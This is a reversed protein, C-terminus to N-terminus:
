VVARPSVFHLLLLAKGQDFQHDDNRDDGDQSGNRQRSVAIVGLLRLHGLNNKGGRRQTSAYGLVDCAVIIQRAVVPIIATIEGRRLIHGRKLPCVALNSRGCLRNVRRRNISLGDGKLRHGVRSRELRANNLRPITTTGDRGLETRTAALA